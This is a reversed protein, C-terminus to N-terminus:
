KYKIELYVDQTGFVNKEEARYIKVEESKGLNEYIYHDTVTKQFKGCEVFVSSKTRAIECKEPEIEELTVYRSEAEWVMCYLFIAAISGFIVPVYMVGEAYVFALLIVIALALIGLFFYATM